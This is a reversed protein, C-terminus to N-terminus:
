KPVTACVMKHSARCVISNLFNTQYAWHKVTNSSNPSRSIQLLFLFSFLTWVRINYPLFKCCIIWSAKLAFVSQFCLQVAALSLTEVPSAISIEKSSSVYSYADCKKNSKMPKLNWLSHQAGGLSSLVTYINMGDICSKPFHWCFTQMEFRREKRLGTVKEKTLSRLSVLLYNEM